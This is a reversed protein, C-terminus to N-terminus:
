IRGLSFLTRAMCQEALIPYCLAVDKNKPKDPVPFVVREASGFLFNIPSSSCPHDLLEM